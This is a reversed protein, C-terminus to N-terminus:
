IEKYEVIKLSLDKSPVSHTLAGSSIVDPGAQCYAELNELTVGGSIEILAKGNVIKKCEAAQAPTMNDLMIIDAGAALAERVQAPTETEVEIKPTHGIAAKIKEVAKTISGAAAIHNDKIMVSDALTMRHNRAGGVRVAYKDLRRMGPQTKRTDVIMVGYKKGVRAYARSASAIGSLRQMFNLATREGKLISLAPGSLELVDEGKKVDDGDKKLPTFRVSPDVIEFVQRAVEMGCLVLDEKARVVARAGDAPTFINDSTIDGLGLDEELALLIIKDTIM